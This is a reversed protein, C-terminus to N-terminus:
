PTAASPPDPRTYEAPSRLLEDEWATGTRGDEFEIDFTLPEGLDFDESDESRGLVRVLNHSRRWLAADSSSDSEFCRYEFYAQTTTM